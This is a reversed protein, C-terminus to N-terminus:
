SHDLSIDWVDFLFFLDGSLCRTPEAATSTRHWTPLIHLLFQTVAVFHMNILAFNLKSPFAVELYCLLYSFSLGIEGERCGMEGAHINWTKTTSDKDARRYRHTQEDWSALHSEEHRQPDSSDLVLGTLWGAPCLLPSSHWVPIFRIFFNIFTAFWESSHANLASTTDPHSIPLVKETNNNRPPCTVVVVLRSFCSRVLFHNWWSQLKRMLKLKTQATIQKHRRGKRERVAARRKAHLDKPSRSTMRALDHAANGFQLASFAM